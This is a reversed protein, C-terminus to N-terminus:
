CYYQSDNVKAEIKVQNGNEDYSWKIFSNGNELREKRGINDYYIKTSDRSGVEELSTIETIRGNSDYNYDYNFLIRYDDFNACAMFALRNNGHDAIDTDRLDNRNKYFSCMNLKIQDSLFKEDVDCSDIRYLDKVIKDDVYDICRIINGINDYTIERKDM